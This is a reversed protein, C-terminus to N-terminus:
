FKKAAKMANNSKDFPANVFYFGAKEREVHFCRLAVFNRSDSRVTTKKHGRLNSKITKSLLNFNISNEYHYIM